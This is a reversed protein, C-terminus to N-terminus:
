KRGKKTKRPKKPPKNKPQEETKQENNGPYLKSVKKYYDEKGNLAAFTEMAKIQGSQSLGAAALQDEMANRKKEDEIYEKGYGGKSAYAAMDVIQEHSAGGIGGKAQEVKLGNIIQKEDTIGAQQYDAVSNMLQDINGDYGIDAAKDEWKAKEEKSNLFNKRAKRNEDEIRMQKAASRGYLSERSKNVAKDYKAKVFDGAASGKDM